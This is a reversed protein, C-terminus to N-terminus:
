GIQLFKGQLDTKIGAIDSVAAALAAREAATMRVYTTGDIIDNDLDLSSLKAREAATMKVYAATDAFSALTYGAMTSQISGVDSQLASIDSTAAAIAAQEAATIKKYVTGDLIDDISILGGDGGVQQGPKVVPTGAQNVAILYCGELDAVDDTTSFVNPAAPDWYVYLDGTSGDAPQSLTGGYNVFGAADGDEDLDSTWAIEGPDGAAFAYGGWSFTPAAPEGIVDLADPDIAPRTGRGYRPGAGLQIEVDPELPDLADLDAYRLLSISLHLDQDLSSETVEYTDDEISAPGFLFVDGVQPAPTVAATLRITRSDVRSASEVAPPYYTGTTRHQIIAVDGGTAVDDIDADVILTLGDVALIRGGQSKGNVQCYLVDGAQYLVQDLNATVSMAGDVWANRALERRVTRSAEHMRTVGGLDITVDTLTDIDRNVVLISREAYDVAADEYRVSAESALNDAEVPDPDGGSTWNGDCLLGVPSRTQEVWLGFDRGIPEIGCRGGAAIQQIAAHANTAAAFVMDCRLMADYGGAGDPVQTDAIAKQATWGAGVLRAPDIGRYYTAAYPSSETGDGEIVPQTLVDRIADAHYRSTAYVGSENAVVKGSTVVSIESVGSETAENPVLSLNLLVMGPHRFGVNRSAQVVSVECDRIHRNNDSDGSLKTVRVRPQMAPTVTLPAGGDYTGSALWQIYAAQSTKGNITKEVLTQWTDSVADGVEVRLRVSETHRGGDTGYHILGNPFAVVIAIEDWGARSLTYTAVPAEDTLVQGVTFDQRFTAWEDHVAQDVTGLRWTATVGPWDTMPRGNLRISAPDPEEPWPGEGFCCLIDRTVQSGKVVSDASPITMYHGVINAHIRRTGYAVQIPGGQQETTQQAFRYSGARESDSASKSLARNLLYSGATVAALTTATALTTAAWSSLGVGGIEIASYVAFFFATIPDM